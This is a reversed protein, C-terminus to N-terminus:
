KNSLSARLVSAELFLRPKFKTMLFVIPSDVMRNYNYIESVAGTIDASGSRGFLM